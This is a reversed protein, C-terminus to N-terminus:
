VQKVEAGRGARPQARRGLIPDGGLPFEMVALVGVAANGIEFHHRGNYLQALRARTNALGIGKGSGASPLVGLGPGDDWVELRLQEGARRARIEVHGARGLRVPGHLVANEVLPQLILPPVPADLLGPEVDLRVDLRHGFRAREVDLYARLFDLEQRLPVEQDGATDLMLRMLDGLRALVREAEAADTQILHGVANLTNLLFHPHLQMRLIQLRAQALRAELQWTDLERQQADRFYNWAYIVGLMGVAFLFYQPFHSAFGMRYFIPFTLSDPEPCYLNRIIPYDPVIKALALLLAVVLALPLRHWWNQRHIPFRSTFVIALLALPVWAYWLALNLALSRSWDVPEGRYAKVICTHSAEFLGLL